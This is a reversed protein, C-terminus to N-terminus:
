ALDLRGARNRKKREKRLKEEGHPENALKRAREALALRAWAKRRKEKGPMSFGLGNEMGAWPGVAAGGGGGRQLKAAAVLGLRSPWRWAVVRRKGRYIAGRPGCGLNAAEPAGCHAVMMMKM